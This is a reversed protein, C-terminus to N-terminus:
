RGASRRACGERRRDRPQLYRDQRRLRRREPVRDGPYAGRASAVGRALARHVYHPVQTSSWVTLKGEGDIAGVAAHQEIPLHTNGEFFFVDEFV